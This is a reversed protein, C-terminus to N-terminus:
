NISHYLDTEKKSIWITEIPLIIGLRKASKWVQKNAGPGYFTEIGQAVNAFLNYVIIYFEVHPDYAAYIGINGPQFYLQEWLYVDILEISNSYDWATQSFQYNETSGGRTQWPNNKIEELDKLIVTM